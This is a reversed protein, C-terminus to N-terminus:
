IRREMPPTWQDVDASWFFLASGYKVLAVGGLIGRRRWEPPTKEDYGFRAAMDKTTLWRGGAARRVDEAYARWTVDTMTACEWAVWSERTQIFDMLADESVLYQPREAKGIRHSYARNRRAKLWGRQRWYTPSMKNVGFLRRIDEMSRVRAGAQNRAAILKGGSSYNYIRTVDCKLKRAIDLAGYGQQTMLDFLARDDETWRRYM